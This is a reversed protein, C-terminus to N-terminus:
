GKKKKPSIWRWWAEPIWSLDLIPATKEFEGNNTAPMVSLWEKKSRQQTLLFSIAEELEKDQTTSRFTIARFIRYLTPRHSKYFHWLFSYYNNGSFALHSECDQVIQKEEHGIATQITQLREESNGEPQYALLMDHFTAILADTRKQTKEQHDKLRQRGKKHISIMRK